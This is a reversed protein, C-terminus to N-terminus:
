DLVVGVQQRPRLVMSHSNGSRGPRGADEPTAVAPCTLRFSAPMIRRKPAAVRPAAQPWEVYARLNLKRKRPFVCAVEEESPVGTQLDPLAECGFAKLIRTSVFRQRELLGTSLFAPKWSARQLLRCAKFLVLLWEKPTVLGESSSCRVDHWARRLATKYRSFVYVDLPQLLATLSAPIYVLRIGLRRAENYISEHIHCPAVDLVLIVYRERVIPGLAASLCRLVRRMAVHSNWSSAQRWLEVNHPREQSVSRLLEHTFKHENGMLIQPLKPQIESEHTIMCVHTVHGRRDALSASESALQRGSPLNKTCLITGRQGTFSYGVATEDLNIILPARFTPAEDVAHNIWRFFGTMQLCFYM